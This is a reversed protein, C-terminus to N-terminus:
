HSYLSLFQDIIKQIRVLSERLGSLDYSDAALAFKEAELSLINFSHKVAIAKLSEAFQRATDIMIAGELKKLLPVIEQTVSDCLIWPESLQEFAEPPISFVSEVKESECIRESHKLFRAAEAFLKALRLPKSLFGDFFGKIKEEESFSVSATVAVIPIAATESTCKLERAACIGDKEPMRIDMFILDPLKEKAMEVAEVGNVACIVQLGTSRLAEAMLERNSATDDAVLVQQEFFRLNKLDSPQREIELSLADCIPIDRLRVEFRTGRDFDSSAAIAGHMLTVLRSCIALSIGCNGIRDGRSGRESFPDFLNNLDSDPIGVGTDEVFFNLNVLKKHESHASEIRISVTGGSTFKVANALLINLIQRLRYEDLMLRQPITEDIYAKFELGKREADQAFSIKLEDLMQRLNSPESVLDIKGAELRALDLIGDIIGVLSRSAGVISKLYQEGKGEIQSPELLESFGIIANLPTRIDHSLNAFFRLKEQTEAQSKAIAQRLKEESEKQATIDLMLGRLSGKRNGFGSDFMGVYCSIWRVQTRNDSTQRCIRFEIAGRDRTGFNESRQIREIFQLFKQLDESYIIKHFEKLSSLSESRVGAMKVLPGRFTMEGSVPELQCSVAGAMDLTSRLFIESNRLADESQKRQTIDVFVGEVYQINKESYLRAFMAGWFVQGNARAFKMELDKVTGRKRLEDFLFTRDVPTVYLDHTISKIKSIAEEPSSYGIIEAMPANMYIFKDNRSRWIGAPLSEFGKRFKDLEEALEIECSKEDSSSRVFGTIQDKERSSDWSIVLQTWGSASKGSSTEQNRDMLLDFSSFGQPEKSIKAKLDFWAQAFAGKNENGLLEIFQDAASILEGDPKKVLPLYGSFSISYSEKEIVFFATRALKCYEEFTQKHELCIRSFDEVLIAIQAFEDNEMEEDYIAANVESAPLPSLKLNNLTSKLILKISELPRIVAKDFAFFTGVAIGLFMSVIILLQYVLFDDIIDFKQSPKIQASIRWQQSQGAISQMLMVHEYDLSYHNLDASKATYQHVKQGNSNFLGIKAAGIKVALNKLFDDLDRMNQSLIVLRLQEIEGSVMNGIEYNQQLSLKNSVFMTLVFSLLGSIILMIPMAIMLYRMKFSRYPQEAAKKLRYEIHSKDQM